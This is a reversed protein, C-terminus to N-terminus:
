NNACKEYYFGLEPFTLKFDTSRKSDLAKIAQHFNETHLESDWHSLGAILSSINLQWSSFFRQRMPTQAIFDWTDQLSKSLIDRSERDLVLNSLIWIEPNSVLHWNIQRVKFVVLHRGYWSILDKLTLVNLLTISTDVYLKINKYRSFRNLTELWKNDSYGYRIYEGRSGYHDHSLVVSCDPWDKLYDEAIDVGKYTRVSGNTHFWIAVKKHLGRQLMLDLLDFTQEQLLPEGGNFHIVKLHEHNSLVYDIIQDPNSSSGEAPYLNPNKLWIKFVDRQTSDISSSIAPACMVCAFNCKNTWILDFFGLPYPGEISGDALTRSLAFDIVHQGYLNSASRPYGSVVGFEERRWCTGCSRPKSGSLFELRLARAPASNVISSFSSDKINGLVESSVCCFKVDGAPSTWLGTWPASCFNSGYRRFISDM